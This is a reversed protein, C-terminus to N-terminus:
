GTWDKVRMSGVAREMFRAAPIPGSKMRFIAPGGNPSFRLAKAKVPKSGRTGDNQYKTYKLPSSVTIRYGFPTRSPVVNLDWREAMDGTRVRGAAYVEGKLRDKLNEAARETSRRTARRVVKGWATQNIKVRSGSPM